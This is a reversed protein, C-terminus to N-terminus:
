TSGVGPWGAVPVLWGWLLLIRLQDDNIPLVTAWRGGDALWASGRRGRWGDLLARWRGVSIDVDFVVRGLEGLLDVKFIWRRRLLLHCEDALLTM